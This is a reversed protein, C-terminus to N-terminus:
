EVLKDLADLLAEQERTRREVPKAYDDEANSDKDEIIDVLTGRIAGEVKWEEETLKRGLSYLLTRPKRSSSTTRNYEIDLGASVFIESGDALTYSKRREIVTGDELRGSEEGSNIVDQRVRKLIGRYKKNKRAIEAAKEIVKPDQSSMKIREDSSMKYFPRDPNDVVIEFISGDPLMYEKEVQYREGLCSMDRHTLWSLLKRENIRHLGTRSEKADEVIAAIPGPYTPSNHERIFFAGAALSLGAVLVGYVGVRRSM